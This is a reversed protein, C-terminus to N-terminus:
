PKHADIYEMKNRALRERFEKKWLMTWDVKSAIDCGKPESIMVMMSDPEYSTMNVVELLRQKLHEFFLSRSDARRSVQGLYAFIRVDGAAGIQDFFPKAQFTRVTAAVQLPRGCSPTDFIMSTLADEEINMSGRYSYGHNALLQLIAERIPVSARLNNGTTARISASSLLLGLLIGRPILKNM